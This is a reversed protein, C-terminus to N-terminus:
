SQAAGVFHVVGATIRILNGLRDLLTKQLAPSLPKCSQQLDANYSRKQAQPVDTKGCVGLRVAEGRPVPKVWMGSNFDFPPYARGFRSIATWIPDDKLAIMRGGYLTGGAAVWKALWDRPVKRNQLRFLEQAPFASLIAADNAQVFQSYGQAEQTNMTAVLNLRKTSTIDTLEGDPNITYGMSGLLARAQERFMTKTVKQGPGDASPDVMRASLDQWRALIDAKDVTASFFARETIDPALQELVRSRATTPMVSKRRIYQQARTTM